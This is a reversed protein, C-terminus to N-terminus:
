LSSTSAYLLRTICILAAASSFFSYRTQILGHVSDTDWSAPWAAATPNSNGAIELGAVGMLVSRLEITVSDM